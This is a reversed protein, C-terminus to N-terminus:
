EIYGVIAYRQASSRFRLSERGLVGDSSKCPTRLPTKFLPFDYGNEKTRAATAM